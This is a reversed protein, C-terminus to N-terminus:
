FCRSPEASEIVLAQLRTLNAAATTNGKDAALRYCALARYADKTAMTGQEFSYGLYNVADISGMSAARVLSQEALEPQRCAGQPDTTNGYCYFTSLSSAGDALTTAAAKFLKEVVPTELQPAMGSLSLSAARLSAEPDGSAAACVYNELAADFFEGTLRYLDLGGLGGYIRARQFCRNEAASLGPKSAVVSLDKDSVSWDEVGELTWCSQRSQRAFNFIKINSYGARKDVVDISKDDIEEIEVDKHGGVAIPSMLPFALASKAVDTTHPEFGGADAVHKLVLVKPTAITHRQQSDASASFAGLFKNFDQSACEDAYATGHSLALMATAVLAAAGTKNKLSFIM